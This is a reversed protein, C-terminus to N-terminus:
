RYFPTLQMRRMSSSHPHFTHLSGVLRKACLLHQPAAVAHASGMCGCSTFGHELAQSGCATCGLTRAKCSSLDGSHTAWVACSSLLGQESCSSFAQTCCHLYLAKFDKNWFSYIIKLFSNLPKGPPETTPLFFTKWHLLCPNSGQDPVIGCSM